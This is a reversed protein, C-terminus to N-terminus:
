NNTCHIRIANGRLCRGSIHRATLTVVDYRFLHSVVVENCTCNRITYRKSSWSASIFYKDNTSDMMSRLLDDAITSSLRDFYSNVVGAKIVKHRITDM